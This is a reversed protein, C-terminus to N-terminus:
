KFATTEINISKNLESLFQRRPINTAGMSMLHPNEVQCDIM